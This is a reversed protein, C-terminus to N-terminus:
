QMHLSGCRSLVLHDDFDNRPQHNESSQEKQGNDYHNRAIPLDGGPEHEDHASTKKSAQQEDIQPIM